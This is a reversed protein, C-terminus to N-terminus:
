RAEEKSGIDSALRAITQNLALDFPDPATSSCSTLSALSASALALALIRTILRIPPKM